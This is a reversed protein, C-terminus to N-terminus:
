SAVMEAVLDLKSRYLAEFGPLEMVEDAKLRKVELLRATLRETAAWVEADRILTLADGIAKKIGIDLPELLTDANLADPDDELMQDGIHHVLDVLDLMYENLGSNFEAAFGALNYLVEAYHFPGPDAISPLDPDAEHGARLQVLADYKQLLFEPSAMYRRTRGLLGSEVAEPDDIGFIAVHEFGDLGTAVLATVHGAEHYATLRDVRDYSNPM